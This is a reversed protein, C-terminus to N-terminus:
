FKGTENWQDTQALLNGPGFSTLEHLPDEFCYVDVDSFLVHFGLELIQLVTRSKMKTVKQFCTTGFHCDDRSVNTDVSNRFVPLGQLTLDDHYLTKCKIMQDNFSECM